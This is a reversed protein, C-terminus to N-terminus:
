DESILEVDDLYTPASSQDRWLYIKIVNGAAATTPLTFPFSVVTWKDFERVVDAMPLAGYFVKATDTPSANVQVVLKATSGSNARLAWGQLQMKRPLQPAIRGLIREYTFGFNVEPNVQVAWHGGHAKSDTLSGEATGGWGVSQEFDNHMLQKTNDAAPTNPQCAGVVLTCSAWLALNPYTM